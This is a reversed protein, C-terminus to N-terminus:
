GGFIGFLSLGINMLFLKVGGFFSRAEIVINGKSKEEDFARIPKESSAVNEIVDRNKVKVTLTNDSQEGDYVAAVKGDETRIALVFEGGIYCNIVEDGYFAALPGPLEQGIGQERVQGISFDQSLAPVLLLGALVLFAIEKRM